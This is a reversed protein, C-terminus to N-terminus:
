WNLATELEAELAATWWAERQTASLGPPETPSNAFPFQWPKAVTLRSAVSDGGFEYLALDYFRM